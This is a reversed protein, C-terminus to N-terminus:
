SEKDLTLTMSIWNLPIRPQIEVRGDKYIRAKRFPFKEDEWTLIKPWEDKIPEEICKKLYAIIEKKIKEIDHETM